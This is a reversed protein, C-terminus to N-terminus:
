PLSARPLRCCAGRCAAPSSSPRPPPPLNAGIRRPPPCPPGGLGGSTSRGSERGVGARRLPPRGLRHPHLRRVQAGDDGPRRRRLAPCVITELALADQREM